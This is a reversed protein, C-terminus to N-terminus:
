LGIDTKVADVVASEGTIEATTKLEPCYLSITPGATGSENLISRNLFVLSWHLWGSSHLTLM